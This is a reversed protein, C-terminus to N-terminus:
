LNNLPQKQLLLVAVTEFRALELQREFSRQKSNRKPTSLIIHDRVNIDLLKGCEVLRKTLKIDAESPHYM